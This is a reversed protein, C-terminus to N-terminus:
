IGFQIEFFLVSVKLLGEPRVVCCVRICILLEPHLATRGVRVAYNFLYLGAMQSSSLAPKLAQETGGLIILLCAHLGLHAPESVEV